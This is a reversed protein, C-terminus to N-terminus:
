DYCDQHGCAWATADEDWVCAGASVPDGSEDDPCRHDGPVCTDAATRCYYGTVKRTCSQKEGVCAVGGCDDSSLCTAPVCQNVSGYYGGNDCACARGPGCDASGLCEDYTCILQPDGGLDVEFWDWVCRGSLGDACDAHTTCQTTVADAIQQATPEDAERVSDCQAEPGGGTGLDPDTAVDVAAAADVPLAGDAGADAAGGGGGGGGDDDGACGSAGLAFAVGLGCLLGMWSTRM